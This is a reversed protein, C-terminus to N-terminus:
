KSKKKMKTENDIQEFMKSVEKNSEQVINVFNTLSIKDEKSVKAKERTIEKILSSGLHEWTSYYGLNKMGEKQEEKSLEKDDGSIKKQLIFCRPDLKVQYTDNLVVIPDPTITKKSAM